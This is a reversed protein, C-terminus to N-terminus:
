EDPDAVRIKAARAGQYVPGLVTLAVSFLRPLVSIAVINSEGMELARLPSLLYCAVHSSGLYVALVLLANCLYALAFGCARLGSAEQKMDLVASSAVTGDPQVDRFQLDSASVYQAPSLATSCM